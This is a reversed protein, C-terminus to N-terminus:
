AEVEEDERWGCKTCSLELERITDFNDVYSKKKNVYIHIVAEYARWVKRSGCKPCKIIKSMSDGRQM